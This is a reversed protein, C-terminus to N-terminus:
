FTRQLSLSVFDRDRLSQNFTLRGDAGLAPGGSGYFHTYNLGVKWVQQYVGKLGISLDGGKRAGGNFQQVVSSNGHPNFGVGIPASLDFGPFVQFWQPELVFRVGWADRSANAALAGPNKTISTRRNWGAEATLTASNWLPSRNFVFIASLNAHASNGVAYLAQGNIGGSGNPSADIQPDSVLPTNRRISAEGALNFGAVETSFSAGFSRVNEPYVLQYNFPFGPVFAGLPRLYTQFLKDHYQMAYFGFEVDSGTPRWRVQAGGQGSNRATLDGVRPAGFGPALLFREGGDDFVDASSFYSGVAPIRSKRFEFQYYGGVTVNDLLQFQGSIQNVPLIIEKFQSNPVSLLKVYDVPSQGYAIGNAGFFLTEGYILSHRGLRVNGRDGNAYVFADLVEVKRGHLDRTAATFENFPVSTQNARGPADNSNSRNYVTDYWAAGSVRAGFRQQYSFDLESLVDLRNSILGRKFNRDGDDLNINNINAAANDNVLNDDRGSVRQAASYKFTNDWRLKIDPNGTDIDFAYAQGAAGLALVAMSIARRTRIPGSGGSQEKRRAKIIGM